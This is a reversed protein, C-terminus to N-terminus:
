TRGDTCVGHKRLIQKVKPELIQFEKKLKELLETSGAKICQEYRVSCMSALHMMDALETGLESDEEQCMWDYRIGFFLCASLKKLSQQVAPLQGSYKSIIQFIDTYYSAKEGFKRRINNNESKPYDYQDSIMKIQYGSIWLSILVAALLELLERKKTHAFSEWNEAKELFLMETQYKQPSIWGKSFM